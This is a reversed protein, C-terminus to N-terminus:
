ALSLRGVWCRQRQRAVQELPQTTSLPSLCDAYSVDIEFPRRPRRDLFLPHSCQPKAGALLKEEQPESRLLKGSTAPVADNGAYFASVGGDGGKWLVGLSDSFQLVGRALGIM